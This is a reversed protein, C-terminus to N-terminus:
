QGMGEGGKRERAGKRVARCLPLIFGERGGVVREGGRGGVYTTCTSAGGGGGFVGLPAGISNAAIITCTTPVPGGRRM